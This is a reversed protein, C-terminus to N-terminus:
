HAPALQEYNQICHECVDNIALSEDVRVFEAAGRLQFNWDPSGNDKLKM